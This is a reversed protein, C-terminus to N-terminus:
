FILCGGAPLATHHDNCALLADRPEETRPLSHHLNMLIVAIGEEPLAAGPNAFFPMKGSPFRSLRIQERQAPTEFGSRNGGARMM